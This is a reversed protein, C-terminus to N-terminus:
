NESLIQMIVLQDSSALNTQLVQRVFTGIVVDRIPQQGQALFYEGCLTEALRYSTVFDTAVLGAGVWSTAGYNGSALDRRLTVAVYNSPVIVTVSCLCRSRQKRILDVLRENAERGFSVALTEIVTSVKSRPASM